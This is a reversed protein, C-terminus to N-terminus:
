LKAAVDLELRVANAILEEVAVLYMSVRLGMPVTPRAVTARTRAADM